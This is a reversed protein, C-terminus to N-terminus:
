NGLLSAVNEVVNQKRFNLKGEHEVVINDQTSNFLGEGEIGASSCLCSSVCDESSANWAGSAFACFCSSLAQGGAFIEAM